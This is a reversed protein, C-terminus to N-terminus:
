QALACGECEEPREITAPTAGGAPPAVGLLARETAVLAALFRGTAAYFGHPDQWAMLRALAPAWWSLHQALFTRQADRCIDFREQRCTAEGEVAARELGLLYAMFELELVIHDHREPHESSPQLGFAAYFGGVDGLAHSRQFAFKSHIYETEYPPCNSSVLLGFTQEYLENLKEPSDPLLALVPAPDLACLPEEGMALTEARAAPEDRVLAAAEDLVPSDEAERLRRWSGARPDLLALAAFRYLSQRALNMALDFDLLM